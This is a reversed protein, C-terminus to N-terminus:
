ACENYTSRCAVNHVLLKNQKEVIDITFPLEQHLHRGHLHLEKLFSACLCVSSLKRGASFKAGRPGGIGGDGGVFSDDRSQQRNFARKAEAKKKRKEFEKRRKEEFDQRKREQRQEFTEDPDITASSAGGPGSKAKAKAKPSRRRRQGESGSSGGSVSPFDATEAPGSSTTQNFVGQPTIM